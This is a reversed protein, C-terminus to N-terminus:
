ATRIGIAYATISAPSPHVHDKGSAFWCGQQPFSGTLLNGDGTWNDLAGGGSLIFGPDLCVSTTPHQAPASTASKIQHMLRVAGSRHRLGIAYATISAPDPVDHDKSRAEWASDSTPFTATLLNGYGQYDVFAGGGTLVYGDPLTAIAQPHQAPNSTEQKIIVDWENNPDAFALAYATISAPSAQEHDKGAASWTQLNKPYSATLLNGMGSWHDLAGGGVIKFGNPVAVDVSPHQAIGSTAVFLQVSFPLPM